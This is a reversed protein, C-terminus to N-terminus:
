QESHGFCGGQVVVLLLGVFFEGSPLGLFVSAILDLQALRLGVPSGGERCGLESRHLAGRRQQPSRPTGQSNTPPWPLPLVLLRNM